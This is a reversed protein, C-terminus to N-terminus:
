RWIPRLAARYAFPPLALGTGSTSSLKARAFSITRVASRCRRSVSAISGPTGATSTVTTRQHRGDILAGRREVVVVVRHAGAASRGIGLQPVLAGHEVGLGPAAEPDRAAVLVDVLDTAVDLAERGRWAHHERGDPM